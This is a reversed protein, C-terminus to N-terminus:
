LTMPAQLQVYNSPVTGRKGNLEADWWDGTQNLISISDGAAFSLENPDRATFNYLAIAQTPIPRTKPVPLPRKSIPQQQIPATTFNHPLQQSYQQQTTSHSQYQTSVAQSATYTTQVKEQNLASTTQNPMYANTSQITSTQIISQSPNGKSFMASVNNPTICHPYNRAAEINVTMATGTITSCSSYIGSIYKVQADAILPYLVELFRTRDNLVNYMDQKLETNLIEYSDRFIKSNRSYDDTKLSANATSKHEMHRYEKNVKDAHTLRSHREDMRRELETYQIIYSDVIANIDLKSGELLKSNKDLEATFQSCITSISTGEEQGVIKVINKEIHGQAAKLYAAADLFQSISRQLRKFNKKQKLLETRRADFETDSTGAHFAQNFKASATMKAEHLEKRINKFVSM